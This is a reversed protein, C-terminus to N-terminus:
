SLNPDPSATESDPQAMRHNEGGGSKIGPHCGSLDHCGKLACLSGAPIRVWTLRARWQEWSGGCESSERAQGHESGTGGSCPGGSAVQRRSVPIHHQEVWQLLLPEAHHGQAPSSVGPARAKRLFTLGQGHLDARVPARGGVHDRADILHPSPVHPGAWPGRQQDKAGGPAEPQRKVSAEWGGARLRVGRTPCQRRSSLLRRSNPGEQPKSDTRSLFTATQQLTITPLVATLQEM